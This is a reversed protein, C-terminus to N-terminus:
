GKQEGRRISRKNAPRRALRVAVILEQQATYLEESYINVMDDGIKVPVGTYDFFMRVLRGSVRATIYKLRTEDYEVKGNLRIEAEVYRREVPVVELNMLARAQPTVVLYRLGMTKGITLPILDMKCIPCAGPGDKLIQPHMSCTWKKTVGEEDPQEAQVATTAAVSPEWTQWIWHVFFGLAFVFAIQGMSLLRGAFVRKCRDWTTRLNM